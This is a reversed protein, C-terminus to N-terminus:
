CRRAAEGKAPATIVVHKAGATIHANAKEYDTFLGTSEVVVDINLDKWPLASPDKESFFKVEKGGILPSVERRPTM